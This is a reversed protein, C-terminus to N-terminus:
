TASFAESWSVNALSSEAQAVESWSVSDWSVESWSVESWSVEDWSVESWSVTNWAPDAQAAAAWAAGDFALGGPVSPDGVVYRDLGANPNPPALLRAALPIRIEGVGSAVKDAVAPLPEATLMLAGKVQDPTWEPHQALLVAAAGAIVPAAFSTGSLSMYGPEVVRDGRVTYLSADPSVAGIMYRGPAVLEPKSFGDATYGFASFPAVTDDSREVTDNTGAAGVTIVFPDNAPAFVM